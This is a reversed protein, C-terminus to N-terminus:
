ILINIKINIKAYNNGLMNMKHEILVFVQISWKLCTFHQTLNLM